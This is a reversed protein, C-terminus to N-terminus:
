KGLIAKIASIPDGVLEVEKGGRHRYTDHAPIMLAPLDEDTIMGLDYGQRIEAAMQIIIPDTILTQM